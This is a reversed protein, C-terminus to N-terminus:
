KDNSSEGATAPREQAPVVLAPKMKRLILHLQKWEAETMAHPVIMDVMFVHVGDNGIPFSLRQDGRLAM